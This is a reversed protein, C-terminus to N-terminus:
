YIINKAENTEKFMNLAKDNNINPFRETEEPEVAKIKKKEFEENKMIKVLLNLNETVKECKKQEENTFKRNLYYNKDSLMKYINDISDIAVIHNSKAINGNFHNVLYSLKDALISDTSRIEKSLELLEIELNDWLEISSLTLSM